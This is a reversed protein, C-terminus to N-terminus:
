YRWNTPVDWIPKNAEIEARHASVGIDDLARDDLRALARRSRWVALANLLSFRPAAPHVSHAHRHTLDTHTM